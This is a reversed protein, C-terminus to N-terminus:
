NRKLKQKLMSAFSKAEPPLMGLVTDEQSNAVDAPSTVNNLELVASYTVRKEFRGLVETDDKSNEGSIISVNTLLAESPIKIRSEIADKLQGINLEPNAGISIYGGPAKLHTKNKIDIKVQYNM